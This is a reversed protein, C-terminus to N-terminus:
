IFFNVASALSVALAGGRASIPTRVRARLV